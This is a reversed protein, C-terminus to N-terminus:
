APRETSQHPFQGVFDEYPAIVVQPRGDWSLVLAHAEGDRAFLRAVKTTVTKSTWWRRFGRVVTLNSTEEFSWMHAVVDAGSLGGSLPERTGGLDKAIRNERQRSKPRQRGGVCRRCDCLKVHRLGDGWAKRRPSGFLGCGCPCDLKDPGPLM